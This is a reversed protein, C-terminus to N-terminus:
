GCGDGSACHARELWPARSAEVPLADLRPVARSRREGHGVPGTHPAAFADIDTAHMKVATRGAFVAGNFAVMTGRGASPASAAVTAADTLNRPGDWGADSSTRMAGTIVIPVSPDVTRDLLYGTEEITDTGHTIVIGTVEGSEVVHRVRERLAWLKDPGM